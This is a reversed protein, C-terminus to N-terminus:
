ISSNQDSFDCLCQKGNFVQFTPSHVLDLFVAQRLPPTELQHCLLLGHTKTQDRNSHCVGRGFTVHPPFPKNPKCTWWQLFNSCSSLCSCLCSVPPLFQLLPWPFTSGIPKRLKCRICGLVLSLPPVAWLPSSEGVDSQSMKEILTGDEWIFRTQAM